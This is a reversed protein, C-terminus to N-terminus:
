LIKKININLSIKERQKSVQFKQFCKNLRM